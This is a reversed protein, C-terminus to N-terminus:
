SFILWLLAALPLTSLLSDIRDLVGGHGPLLTGSDKLQAQRKLLSEFLDGEISLGTYIVAIVLVAFLNLWNAVAPVCLHLLLAYILVAVLAGLAGERTKGPSINPALKTRGWARGVFYAAIDAIWVPAMFALLRLPAGRRLEILALATPVLAVLGFMFRAYFGDLRLQYRLFVPVSFCWMALACVYAAGGLLQTEFGAPTFGFAVVPVVAAVGFIHREILKAKVLRAWEGSALWVIFAVFCGWWQDPLGFLAGAFLLGIALATLVRTKLM